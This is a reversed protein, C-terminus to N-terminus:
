EYFESTPLSLLLELPMAGCKVCIFALVEYKGPVEVDSFNHVEWEDGCSAVLGMDRAHRVM